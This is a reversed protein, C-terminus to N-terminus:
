SGLSFIPILVAPWSGDKPSNELRSKPNGLGIGKRAWSVIMARDNTPPDNKRSWWNSLVEPTVQLIISITRYNSTYQIALKIRTPQVKDKGTVMWCTITVGWNVWLRNYVFFWVHVFLYAYFIGACLLQICILLNFNLEQNASLYSNLFVIAYFHHFLTHLEFM